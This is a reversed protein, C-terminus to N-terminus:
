LAGREGAEHLLRVIFCFLLAALVALSFIESHLIAAAALIPVIKKM